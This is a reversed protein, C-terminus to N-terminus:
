GSIEELPNLNVSIRMFLGFSELRFGRESQIYQELPPVIVEVHGGSTLSKLGMWLAYTPWLKQKEM